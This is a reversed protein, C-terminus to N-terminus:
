QRNVLKDYISQSIIPSLCSAYPLYGPLHFDPNCLHRHVEGCIRLDHETFLYSIGKKDRRM